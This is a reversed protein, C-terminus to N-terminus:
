ARVSNGCTKIVCLSSRSLTRERDKENDSTKNQQLFRESIQFYERKKSNKTHFARYITRFLKQAKNDSKFAHPVKMKQIPIEVFVAFDNCVLQM